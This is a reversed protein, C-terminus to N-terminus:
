FINFSNKGIFIMAIAIALFSGVYAGIIKIAHIFAVLSDDGFVYFWRAGFMLFIVSIGVIRPAYFKFFNPKKTEKNKQPLLTAHWEYFEERSNFEEKFRVGKINPWVFFDFDDTDMWGEAYPDYYIMM